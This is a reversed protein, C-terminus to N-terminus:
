MTSKTFRLDEILAYPTLTPVDVEWWKIWYRDRSLGKVRKLIRLMNDSIRLDRIPNEIKGRKIRFIGDRPITSFDGSQYNQYRLYWNNTVYIGDDVEAILENLSREGPNVILNWPKPIILGANGTTEVNFKKATTSNHLYTKLVGNEIIVNKRTPVGEDDFARAGYAGDVTPDDIITLIESAVELGIKDILFSMGSEILFASSLIGVQNILDAFVLPGLIADYRGPKGEKPNLSAEAIEGAKRGAERPKFDRETQAVSVFHGSATKSSFARVSIELCTKEQEVNVRGSTALKVKIDTAILSGAARKAGMEAAGEIAEEVYKVLREPTIKAKTPKLLNQNYSFPGMPLPAYVDAPPSIKAINILRDIKQEMERKTGLPTTISARREKMMLFIDIMRERYNKSITINNNSFRIMTKDYEVLKVAIDTAGKKLGYRIIHSLNEDEIM